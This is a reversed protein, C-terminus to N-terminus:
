QFLAEVGQNDGFTLDFNKGVLSINWGFSICDSLNGGQDQFWEELKIDDINAVCPVIFIAETKVRPLPNQSRFDIGVLRLKKSECEAVNAFEFLEEYNDLNRAVFIGILFPQLLDVIATFNGEKDTHWLKHAQQFEQPLESFSSPQEAVDWWEMAGYVQKLKM